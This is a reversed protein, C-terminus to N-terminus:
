KILKFIFGLIGTQPIAILKPLFKLILYVAVFGLLISVSWICFKQYWNLEKEVEKPQFVTHIVPVDILITDHKVTEVEKKNLHADVGLISNNVWASMTILGKKVTITDLSAIGDKVHIIREVTVNSPPLQIKVTDTRVIVSDKHSISTTGLVSLVRDRHKIINKDTLCSVMMLSIVVVLLKKM